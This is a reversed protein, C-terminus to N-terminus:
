QVASISRQQQRSTKESYLPVAFPNKLKMVKLSELESM